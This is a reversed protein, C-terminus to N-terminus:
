VEHLLDISPSLSDHTVPGAMGYGRAAEPSSPWMLFVLSSPQVRKLDLHLLLFVLRISFGIMRM